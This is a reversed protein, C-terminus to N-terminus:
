EWSQEVMEVADIIAQTDEGAEVVIIAAIASGNADRAIVKITGADSEHCIRVIAQVHEETLHTKMARHTSPLSSALERHPDDAEFQRLAERLFERSKLRDVEPTSNGLPATINCYEDAAKVLARVQEIM